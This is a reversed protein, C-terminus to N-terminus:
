FNISVNPFCPVINFFGRLEPLDLHTEQAESGSILVDEEDTIETSGSLAKSNCM